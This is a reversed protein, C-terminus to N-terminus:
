EDSSVRELMVEVGEKDGLIAPGGIIQYVVRDPRYAIVRMSSEIDIPYRTRMRTRNASVTLGQRVSESRSPMEDQMHCWRTNFLEWTFVDNGYADQGSVVKREIQCRTNLPGIKM